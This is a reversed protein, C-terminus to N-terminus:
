HDRGRRQAVWAEFDELCLGVKAGHEDRALYLWRAPRRCRQCRGDQQESVWRRQVEVEPAFVEVLETM